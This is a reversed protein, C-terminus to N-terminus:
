PLRELVYGDRALTRELVPKEEFFSAHLSHGYTGNVVRKKWAEIGARTGEGAPYTDVLLDDEPLGRYVPISDSAIIRMPYQDTPLLTEGFYNYITQDFIVASAAGAVALGALFSLVVIKLRALM